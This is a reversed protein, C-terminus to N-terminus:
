RATIPHVHLEELYTRRVLATARLECGLSRRTCELDRKWLHFQLDIVVIFSAHSGNGTPTSDGYCQVEAQLRTGTTPRPRPWDSTSLSTTM